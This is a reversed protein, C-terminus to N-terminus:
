APLEADRELGVVVQVARGVEVKLIRWPCEGILPQEISGEIVIHLAVGGLQQGLRHALMREVVHERRLIPLSEEVVQPGETLQVAVKAVAVGSLVAVGYRWASAKLRAGM